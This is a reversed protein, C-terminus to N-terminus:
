GVAGEAPVVLINVYSMVVCQVMIASKPYIISRLFWLKRSVVDSEAM